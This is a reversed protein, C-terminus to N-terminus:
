PTWAGLFVDDEEATLQYLVTTLDRIFINYASRTTGTSTDQVSVLANYAIFAGTPDFVPRIEDTPDAGLPVVGAPQGAEIGVVFLDHNDPLERSAASFVLLSGNPAFAPYAENRLGDDATLQVQPFGQEAQSLDMLVLDPGSADDQRVVAVFRGDASLTPHRYTAADQTLVAAQQALVDYLIVVTNSTAAATGIAVIRTGDRSIQPQVVDLVDITAWQDTLDDGQVAPDSVNFTYVTELAQTGARRLYLGRVGNDSVTFNRVLDDSVETFSGDGSLPYRRPTLFERSIANRGGWAYMVGSVEPPPAPLIRLSIETPTASPTVPTPLNSTPTISPTPSVIAVQTETAALAAQTGQAEQTAVNETSLQVLRAATAAQQTLPAVEAARQSNALAILLFVGGCVLLTYVALGALTMQLLRRSIGPQWEDSKAAQDERQMEKLQERADANGPDLQLISTLAITKEARDDSAEALAKWANLNDPDAEVARKLFEIGDEREGSELALLGRELLEDSTEDFM